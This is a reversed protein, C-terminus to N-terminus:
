RKKMCLVFDLSNVPSDFYYNYQYGPVGDCKKTDATGDFRQLVEYTGPSCQAKRMKPDADPM